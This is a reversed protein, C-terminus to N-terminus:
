DLLSPNFVLKGDNLSIEIFGNKFSEDIDESLQYMGAICVLEPNLQKAFIKAETDGSSGAFVKGMVKGFVHVHGDAVVEAGPNISGMVILDRDKAYIQQGSRVSNKVMLATKLGEEPENKSRKPRTKPKERPFIALGAYEAQEKIAEDETRIGIPIMQLQTLYEVLLALFTPDKLTIQPELVIPIGVFFDPAQEIKAAIAKKTEDIQDSFLNLVTLSLISGKLDVIKSM